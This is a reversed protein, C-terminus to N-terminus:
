QNDASLLQSLRAEIDQQIDSSTRSDSRQEIVETFIGASKGLLGLASIRASDSEATTAELKLQKLVFDKTSQERILEQRATEARRREIGAEIRLSCKPNALLKCAEVEVWQPVKGKSNLSVDYIEAYAQKNSGYKNQIIAQCFAEQKATLKENSVLKLKGKDKKNDMASELKNNVLLIYKMVAYNSM